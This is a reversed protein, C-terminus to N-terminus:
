NFPNVWDLFGGSQSVKIRIVQISKKDDIKFSLSELKRKKKKKDRMNKCFDKLPILSKNENVEVMTSAKYDLYKYLDELEKGDQDVVNQLLDKFAGPDVEPAKPLSDRKPSDPKSTGQDNNAAGNNSPPNNNPDSVNGGPQVSNGLIGIGGPTVAGLGSKDFPGQAPSMETIVKIARTTRTLPDDNLVLQITYIGGERFMFAPVSDGKVENKELVKWEYSTIYPMDSVCYFHVTSGIKPRIPDAFIEVVPKVQKGSLFPDQAIVVEVKFECEGNVTAKVSYIKEEIFGHSVIQGKVVNTGDGFDWEVTAASDSQIGFLSLRNLVCSAVNEVSKGNITISDNPCPQSNIHNFRIQKYSYLGLSLFCVLVMAVWVRYDLGLIRRTFFNTANM